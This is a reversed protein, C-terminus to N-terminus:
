HAGLRSSPICSFLVKAGSVKSRRIEELTQALLYGANIQVAVETAKLRLKEELLLLTAM